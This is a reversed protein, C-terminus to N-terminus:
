EAQKPYEDPAVFYPISKGDVRIMQCRDVAEERQWQQLPIDELLEIPVPWLYKPIIHFQIESSFYDNLESRHLWKGRRCDPNSFKPISPQLQAIHDFLCGYILQKVAIDTDRYYPPLDGKHRQTLTLQQSLLHHLKRDYTDRSDPGPFYIGNTSDVGLYFKTAIELHSLRGGPERILFDLEGVTSHRNQQVQLNRELLEVVPSSTLLAAFADEFLHGLKQDLNLEANQGTDVLWRRNFRPANPLDGVLLPSILLSQILANSPTLTEKWPLQM